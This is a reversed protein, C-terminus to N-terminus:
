GFVQRLCAMTSPLPEQWLWSVDLWFGPVVGPALRGAALTETRYGGAERVELRVSQAFPDITWIEPVGAERYRPLKREIDHGPHGASAIEIVLDAPGELRQPGMLPRREDRIVMLDPEPSWRPDLRMPYKSGVVSGGGREDFYIRFLANLFSCIEEHRLSAAERVVLQGDLFEWPSDEGSLAYFEEETLAPAPPAEPDSRMKTM